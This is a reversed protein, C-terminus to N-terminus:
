RGFSRIADGSGNADGIDFGFGGIGGLMEAVKEVSIGLIEVQAVVAGSIEKLSLEFSIWDFRVVIQALGNDVSMLVRYLM